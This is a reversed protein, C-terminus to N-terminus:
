MIFILLILGFYFCIGYFTWHWAEKWKREYGEAKLTGAILINIIGPIFFTIMKWGIGLPRDAIEAKFDAKIKVDHEASKIQEITLERKKLEAEAAAMAEPQYEERNITVIEMLDSDTRQTMVNEFKSNM